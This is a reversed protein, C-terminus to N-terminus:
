YGEKESFYFDPYKRSSATSPSSQLSQSSVAFNQWTKGLERYNILYYKDYSKDDPNVRKHLKKRM